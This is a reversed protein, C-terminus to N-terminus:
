AFTYRVFRRFARVEEVAEALPTEGNWEVVAVGLRTYRFHLTEERWLHWLRLAQSDARDNPPGTFALPSVDVLVLDFGRRRLDLLANTGREDLLPSLAIVLAQPTLSRAPLVDIDKWVYSFNIETELLSEAIRYYQLTGAAPTLWKVIGGFGILGVRDQASLYHDALSAAARVALDLTSENERQAEAFSDLFIIVDSNREPHQQNVYLSQRMSSARWNVRRIRDGPVYPRVDAFEIGEAKARAVRNGAYPQTELPKILRQLREQRPYIRLPTVAAIHTDILRLRALDGIRLDFDGLRYAGWHEYSLRVPIARERGAKLSLIRAPADESAEVGRPLSLTLHAERVAVSASVVIEAEIENGEFARDGPLRLTVEPKPAPSFALGVALVLAFPAGLGALEPRGLALAAIFSAAAMAAYLALKPSRKM